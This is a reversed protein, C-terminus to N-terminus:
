LTIKLSKELFKLAAWTANQPNISSSTCSVHVFHSSYIQVPSLINVKRRERTIKCNLGM